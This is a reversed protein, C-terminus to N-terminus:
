GKGDRSKIVSMKFEDTINRRNKQYYGAQSVDIGVFQLLRYRLIEFALITVHVRKRKTDM